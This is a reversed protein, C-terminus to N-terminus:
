FRRCQYNNNKFEDKRSALEQYNEPYRYDTTQSYFNKGQKRYEKGPQFYTNDSTERVVFWIWHKADVSYCLDKTVIGKVTVKKIFRKGAFVPFDATFSMGKVVNM